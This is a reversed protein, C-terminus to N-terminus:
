VVGHLGDGSGRPTGDGAAELGGGPFVTCSWGGGPGASADVDIGSGAGTESDACCGTTDVGDMNAPFM